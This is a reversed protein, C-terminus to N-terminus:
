DRFLRENGLNHNHLIFKRRLRNERYNSSRRFTKENEDDSDDKSSSYALIKRFLSRIM